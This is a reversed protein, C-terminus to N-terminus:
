LLAPEGHLLAGIFFALILLFSNSIGVLARNSHHPILILVGSLFAGVSLLAQLDPNKLIFGTLIAIFIGIVVRLGDWPAHFLKKPHINNLVINTITNQSNHKKM